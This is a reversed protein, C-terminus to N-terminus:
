KLPLYATIYITSAKYESQLHNCIPILSAPVVLPAKWLLLLTFYRSYFPVNGCKPM